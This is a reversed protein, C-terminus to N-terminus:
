LKKEKKTEDSNMFMDDAKDRFYLMEEKCIKVISKAISTISQVHRSKEKEEEESIYHPTAPPKVKDQLSEVWQKLGDFKDYVGFVRMKQRYDQSIDNLTRALSDVKEKTAYEESLQKFPKISDMMRNAKFHERFHVELEPCQEVLEKVYSNDNTVKEWNIKCHTKKGIGKAEKVAKNLPKLFDELTCKRLEDSNDAKQVKATYDSIIQKYKTTPAM